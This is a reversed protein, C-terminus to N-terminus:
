CPAAPAILAEKLSRCTWLWQLLWRRRGRMDPVRDPSPTSHSILFGPVGKARHSIAAWCDSFCRWSCPQVRSGRAERWRILNYREVTPFVRTTGIIINDEKLVSVRQLWLLARHRRIRYTCNKILLITMIITSRTYLPTLPSPPRFLYAPQGYIKKIFV